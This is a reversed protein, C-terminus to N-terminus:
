PRWATTTPSGTSASCSRRSAIGAARSRTATASPAAAAGPRVRRLGRQRPQARRALQRLPAAPRRRGQRAAAHQLHLRAHAPRARAGRHGGRREHPAGRPRAVDAARPRRRAHGARARRAARGHDGLGARQVAAGVGLQGLDVERRPDEGRARLAPAAPLPARLAPLPARHRHRRRRAARRRPRRRAGGVRARLVAAPDRDGHEEGAHAAHARRDRPDATDVSFRLMAYHGSRSALESIEM